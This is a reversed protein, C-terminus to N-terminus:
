RREYDGAFFGFLNVRPLTACGMVNDRGAFRNRQARIGMQSKAKIAM